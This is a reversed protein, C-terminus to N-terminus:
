PACSYDKLLAGQKLQPGTVQEDSRFLGVVLGTLDKNKLGIYFDMKAKHANIPVDQFNRPLCPEIWHTIGATQDLTDITLKLLPVLIEVYQRALYVENSEKVHAKEHMIKLKTLLEKVKTSDFPTNLVIRFRNRRHDETFALCRSINQGQIIPWGKGRRLTEKKLKGPFLLASALFGGVTTDNTM